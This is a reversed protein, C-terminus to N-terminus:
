LDIEPRTEAGGPLDACAGSLARPARFPEAGIM